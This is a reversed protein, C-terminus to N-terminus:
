NGGGPRPAPTTVGDHRRGRAIPTQSLAVATAVAILEVATRATVSWTMVGVATANGAEVSTARSVGTVSAGVVVVVAALGTVVGGGGGPAVVVVVVDSTARGAPSGVVVVVLEVVEVVAGGVVVKPEVPPTITTRQLPLAM